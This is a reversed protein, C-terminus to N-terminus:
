ILIKKKQRGIRIPIYVVFMLWEFTLQEWLILSWIQQFLVRPEWVFASHSLVLLLRQLNCVMVQSVTQDSWATYVDVLVEFVELVLSKLTRLCMAGPM